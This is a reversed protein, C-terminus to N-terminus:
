SGEHETHIGSLQFLDWSVSGQDNEGVVDVDRLDGGEVGAQQRALHAAHDHSLMDLVFVLDDTANQVQETGNRAARRV